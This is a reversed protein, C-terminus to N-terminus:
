PTKVDDFSDDYINYYVDGGKDQINGFMTWANGYIGSRMSDFGNNEAFERIYRACQHAYAKVDHVTKQSNEANADYFKYVAQKTDNGAIGDVVSDALYNKYAEKSRDGFVGDVDDETGDKYYGNELLMRQVDKIKSRGSGGLSQVKRDIIGDYYGNDYLEKQLKATDESFVGKPLENYANMIRDANQKRYVLDANKQLEGFSDDVLMRYNGFKDNSVINGYDDMYTEFRDNKRDDFKQYVNQQKLQTNDSDHTSEFMTDKVINEALPVDEVTMGNHFGINGYELGQANQQRTMPYQYNVFGNDDTMPVYTQGALQFLHGGLEKKKKGNNSKKIPAKKQQRENEWPNGNKEIYSKYAEKQKSVPVKTVISTASDKGDPYGISGAQGFFRRLKEGFTKPNAYTSETDAIDFAFRDFTNREGNIDIGSTRGLSWEVVKMPDRMSQTLQAIKGPTKAGEQGQELNAYREEVVNKAYSGGNHTRYADHDIQGEVIPRGFKDVGESWLDLQHMAALEDEDYNLESNTIPYVLGARALWGPNTDADKFAQTWSYDNNGREKADLKNYVANAAIIPMNHMRNSVDRVANTIPSPAGLVDATWGLADILVGGPNLLTSVVKQGLRQGFTKM